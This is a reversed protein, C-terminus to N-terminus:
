LVLHLLFDKMFCYNRPTEREDDIEGQRQRKVRQWIGKMLKGSTELLEDRFKVVSAVEPSQKRHSDLKKFAQNYTVDFPVNGVDTQWYLIHLLDRIILPGPALPFREYFLLKQAKSM